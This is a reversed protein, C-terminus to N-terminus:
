RLKFLVEPRQGRRARYVISHQPATRSMAACGCHTDRAFSFKRRHFKSWLLGCAATAVIILSVMQQWEM